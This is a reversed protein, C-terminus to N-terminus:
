QYFKPVLRGVEEELGGELSCGLPSPSSGSMVWKFCPLTTESGCLGSFHPPEIEKSKGIPWSSCLSGQTM